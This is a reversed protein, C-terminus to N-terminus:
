EGIRLSVEGVLTPVGVIHRGAKAEKPTPAKLPLYVVVIQLVRYEKVRVAGEDIRQGGVVPGRELLHALLLEVPAKLLVVCLNLPHPAVVELHSLINLHLHLEDVGSDYRPRDEDVPGLVKASLVVLYHLLSVLRGVRLPRLLDQALVQPSNVELLQQVLPLGLSDIRAEFCTWGLPGGIVIHGDDLEIYLERAVEPQADNM